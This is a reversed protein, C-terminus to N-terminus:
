NDFVLIRMLKDNDANFTLIVIRQALLKNFWLNNVKTTYHIYYWINLNEASIFSPAGILNIVDLKSLSVDQRLLKEQLQEIQEDQIYKGHYDITSASLEITSASLILLLSM